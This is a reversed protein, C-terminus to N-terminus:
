VKEADSVISNKLPKQPTKIIKVVEERFAIIANTNTKIKKQPSEMEPDKEPLKSAVKVTPSKKTRKEGNFVGNSKPLTGPNSYM